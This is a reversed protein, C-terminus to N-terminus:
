ELCVTKPVLEARLRRDALAEIKAFAPRMGLFSSRGFIGSVWNAPKDAPKDAVAVAVVVM